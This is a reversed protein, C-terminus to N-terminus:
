LKNLTQQIFVLIFIAKKKIMRWHADSEVSILKIGDTM